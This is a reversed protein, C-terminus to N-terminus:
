GSEFTSTWAQNPRQSVSATSAHEAAIIVDEAVAGADQFEAFQEDGMVHGLAGLRRVGSLYAHLQLARLDGQDVFSSLDATLDPRAKAARLDNLM